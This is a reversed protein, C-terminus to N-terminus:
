KEVEEKYYWIWLKASMGMKFKRADRTPIFLLLKREDTRYRLSIFVNLLM